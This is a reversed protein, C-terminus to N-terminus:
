GRLGWHEREEKEGTSTGSTEFSTVLALAEVQERSGMGVTSTLAQRGVRQGMMVSMMLEERDDPITGEQKLVAEM